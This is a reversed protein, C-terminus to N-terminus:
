PFIVKAPPTDPMKPRSTNTVTSGQSTASFLNARMESFDIRLSNFDARLRNSEAVSQKKLSQRDLWWGVALAVLATLWLLDRITFRFHM